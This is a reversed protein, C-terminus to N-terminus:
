IKVKEDEGYNNSEQAKQVDFANKKVKNNAAIQRLWKPLLLNCLLSSWVSYIESVGALDFEMKKIM